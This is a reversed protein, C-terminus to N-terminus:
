CSDLGTTWRTRDLLEEKETLSFVNRFKRATEDDDRKNSESREMLSYSSQNNGDDSDSDAEDDSEDSGVVLPEVVETVSEGKPRGTRTTPSTAQSGGHSATKKLLSSEGSAGSTTRTLNSDQSPSTSFIKTPKKIWGSWGQQHHDEMGPPPIGAQRPPYGDDEPGSESEQHITALSDHSPKHKFISPISLASRHDNHVNSDGDKDTSRSVLPKLVSSIKKLAVPSTTIKHKEPERALVESPPAPSPPRPLESSPRADLLKQIVERARDGDQFSAFFYSDVSM